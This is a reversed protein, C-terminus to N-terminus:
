LLYYLGLKDNYECSTVQDGAENLMIFNKIVVDGTGMRSRKRNQEFVPNPQFLQPPADISNEAGSEIGNKNLPRTEDSGESYQLVVGQEQWCFREYEKAVDKADGWM